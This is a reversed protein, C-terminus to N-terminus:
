TAREETSQTSRELLDMIRKYAFREALEKLSAALKADHAKAEDLLALMRDLDATLTAERLDNRLREPLRAVAASTPAPARPAESPADEYHVGLLHGLRELLPGERIPKKMFDDAGADM